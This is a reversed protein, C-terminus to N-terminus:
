IGISCVYGVNYRYEILIKSSLAQSNNFYRM